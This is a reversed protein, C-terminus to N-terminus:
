IYGQPHHILIVYVMICRTSEERSLLMCSQGMNIIPYLTSGIKLNNHWLKQCCHPIAIHAKLLKTCWYITLDHM